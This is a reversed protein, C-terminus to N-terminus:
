LKTQRRGNNCNRTLLKNIVATRARALRQYITNVDVELMTAIEVVPLGDIYHLHTTHYLLPSLNELRELAEDLAIGDFPDASLSEASQGTLTRNISGGHEHEIERRRTEKSLFSMSKHFVFQKILAFAVFKNEIKGEAEREMLAVLADQALDEAWSHYDNGGTGKLVEVAHAQAVAMLEVAHDNVITM